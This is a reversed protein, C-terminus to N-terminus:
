RAGNRWDNFDAVVAAAVTADTHLKPFDRLYQRYKKWEGREATSLPVDSLQTWDTEKLKKNREERILMWCDLLASGTAIEEHIKWNVCVHYIRRVTGNKLESSEDVIFPAIEETAQSEDIWYTGTAWQGFRLHYQKYVKADEASKFETEKKEGTALNEAVIKYM